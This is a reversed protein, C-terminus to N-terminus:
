SFYITILYILRIIIKQNLCYQTNFTIVFIILILNLFFRIFLNFYYIM